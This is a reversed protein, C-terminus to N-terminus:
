TAREDEGRPLSASGELAALITREKTATEEFEASPNSAAVIGAGSYVWAEGERVLASRIAVAFEGDGDAGIRGVPGAYWGRSTPEHTAIWSLAADRPYGGVAPTPHLAGVLRALPVERRLRGQVPTALHLLHPLARIEPECATKLTRCYPELAARIAEVVPRHEDLDKLSGALLRASGAADSVRHPATGALAESRVALGRKQILLEPTAGLFTTGSQRLAFRYASPQLERMRRLIAGEDDAAGRVLRTQRAVVVKRLEGAAISARAAEVLTSWQKRSMRDVVRHEVGRRADLAPLRLALCISGLARLHMAISGADDDETLALALAARDGDVAYTWRPLVFLGDGFPAWEEALTTGHEFALGGLLSPAFPPAALHRARLPFGAFVSSVADELDAFRNAGRLEIRIAEGLGVLTPGGPPDWVMAAGSPDLALLSEPAAVPAPVVFVGGAGRFRRIQNSLYRTLEAPTVAAESFRVGESAVGVM